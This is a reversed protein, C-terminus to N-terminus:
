KKCRLIIRRYSTLNPKGNDTVECIIHITKDLMDQPIVINACSQDSDNITVTKKYTGAEPIIWWKYTLQNKDPDYSKSANLKVIKNPQTEINIIDLGKNKRLVVVPNINGKGNAAWDMRAAFNNFAAQYFYEEYKASIEKTEDRYNTIAYSKNDRSLQWKFYGAWGVYEYSKPTSLGNPILHLFSPTDGEVGFAYKPYVKGLNGHNQIHTVYENWNKKGIENHSMWASEDWIFLLEDKFKNRMWWHSSIEYPTESPYPRDQDTIAFIALKNLFTKLEKKDRKQEVQWIAQALTNAGGWVAIWLPRKDNEDAQQIILNSGETINNKGLQDLGIKRSGRMIRSRLYAPSPWYGLKQQKEDELYQTQKSRKMLNPLDKEYANIADEILSFYGDNVERMSFGVTFVIGEIELLDSHVLLRVLSESDDTEWDTIDTLVIVRPKYENPLYSDNEKITTRCSVFLIATLFISIVKKMSFIFDIFNKQRICLKRYIRPAKNKKRSATLIVVIHLREKLM